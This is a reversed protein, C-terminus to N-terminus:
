ATVTQLEPLPFILGGGAALFDREKKIITDRFHWPLVLFYDPRMARADAESIIPIGTGPTFSGFKDENVEAIAPLLNEYIGCYQLLVNGKTSAGYGLVRKGRNRLDALLARLARRQKVMTSSLTEFPKATDFGQRTEREIVTPVSDTWPKGDAWVKLIESPGEAVIPARGLTVVFSGGNTDNFDLDVFKLGLRDAMWEIQKVAYYELHEHCVTDYASAAVMAPLYSQELVWIGDDALIELVQQAFDLPRELDYFMAISTVVRARQDGVQACVADAAFFDAVVEVGEPYFERFKAATPDLGLKRLGATKYGGLLTGDNSGIDIVLDGAELAIREEIGAVLEHLHRVMSGNLGSRYGYDGGYLTPLDYNHALQVLGCGGCKVLRLPGSPVREDRSKPFVGTLAQEGLDLVPELDTGRCLRCDDIACYVPNMQEIM